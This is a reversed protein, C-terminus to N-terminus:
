KKKNKNKPGDPWIQKGDFDVEKVKKGKKDSVDWHDGHKKDKKWITDDKNNRWGQDGKLKVWDDGEGPLSEKKFRAFFRGKFELFDNYGNVQSFTYPFEREAWECFAVIEKLEKLGFCGSRDSFGNELLIQRGESDLGNCWWDWITRKEFYNHTTHISSSNSSSSPSSYSPPAPTPRYTTHLQEHYQHSNDNGRRNRADNGAAVTGALVAYGLLFITDLGFM